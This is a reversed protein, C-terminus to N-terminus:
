QSIETLETRATHYQRKVQVGTLGPAGPGVALNAYLYSRREKEAAKGRCEARELSVPREERVRILL